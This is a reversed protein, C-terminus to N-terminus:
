KRQFRDGPELVSRAGDGALWAKARADDRLYADWFATSIAAIARHHNPNRPRQEGPLARETFASHEAGELVLEYKDGPPLAPFVGLRNEVDAGGIISRDDTGTMVMFPIAIGAFARRSDGIRPATPSMAIAARIRPERLDGGIPYREGTVAQTTVAGFSHGSMGIRAMDLRGRLPSGADANWRQLADITDHVDEARLILNRASAAKKMAAMRQAPAIDKWVGEDSGAHQLFVAVYGRKAWHEGLFASGTRAGGLGHSFIVIPAAAAEEPLYVRLPIERGKRGAVVLDLGFAPLSAALAVLIATIEKWLSRGHCELAGCPGFAPEDDQFMDRLDETAIRQAIRM